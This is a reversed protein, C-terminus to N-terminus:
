EGEKALYARAAAVLPTPGSCRKGRPRSAIYIRDDELPYVAVGDDEILQSLWIAAIQWEHLDDWQHSIGSPRFHEELAAVADADTKVEHGSHMEPRM